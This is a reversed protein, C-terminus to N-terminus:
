EMEGSYGEMPTGNDGINSVIAQGWSQKVQKFFGDRGCGQLVERELLYYIGIITNYSYIYTYIYIYM